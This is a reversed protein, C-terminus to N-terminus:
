RADNPNGNEFAKFKCIIDAALLAIEGFDKLIPEVSRCLGRSRPRTYLDPASAVINDISDIRIHILWFLM